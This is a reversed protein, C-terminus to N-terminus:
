DRKHGAGSRDAYRWDSVPGRKKSRIRFSFSMREVSELNGCRRQHFRASMPAAAVVLPVPVARGIGPVAVRISRGHLRHSRTATVSLYLPATVDDPIKAAGDGRGVQHPAPAEPM